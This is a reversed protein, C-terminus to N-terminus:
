GLGDEDELIDLLSEICSLILAEQDVTARNAADALEGIARTIAYAAAM